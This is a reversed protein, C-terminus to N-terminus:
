KVVEAKIVFRIIPEDVSDTNVYIFQQVKGSYGKSKFEVNVKTSEQPALTKKEIESVTCGCSTNTEKINLVRDSDNQIIFNHKLVQGEEIRGFDWVKPDQTSEEQAANKETQACATSLFLFMIGIVVALRKM